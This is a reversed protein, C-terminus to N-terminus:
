EITNCSKELEAEPTRLAPVLPRLVTSYHSCRRNIAILFVLTHIGHGRSLPNFRADLTPLSKKDM